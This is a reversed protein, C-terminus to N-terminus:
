GWLIRAVIAHNLGFPKFTANMRTRTYIGYYNADFTFKDNFKYKVGLGTGGGYGVGGPPVSQQFNVQGNPTTGNVLANHIIPYTKNNIVFFNKELRTNNVNGFLNVYAKIPGEDYFAAQIGLNLNTRSEEGFIPVQELQANGTLTPDNPNDIEVTVFNEVKLKIINIDAYIAISEDLNIGGHGGVNYTTRYRITEPNFSSIRYNYIFHQDLEPQYFINNFYFNVGYDTVNGKYIQSTKNNAKFAGINLGFFVTGRISEEEQNEQEDDEEYQAFSLTSLGIFLILFLYKM